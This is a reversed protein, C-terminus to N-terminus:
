NNPRPQQVLTFTKGTLEKYATKQEATLLAMAKDTSEKRVDAMKKMTGERDDQLQPRLETMQAMMAQNIEQFKTKQDDTIKLAESVRPMAFASAGMQQTQIQEFRKAQEPKLIEALGKKLDAQMTKTVEAVKTRREDDSLDQLGQFAERQKTQMEAAFTTLKSTQDETVKLEDQVSKNTLLMSGGGMGGFGRGGQALASSSLLAVAGLALTMRFFMRM